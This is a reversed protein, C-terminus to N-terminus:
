CAPAPTGTTLFAAPVYRDAAIRLWEASAGRSGSVADGTTRCQVDVVAGHGVVGEDVAGATPASRVTIPAAPSDATALHVDAPAEGSRGTWLYDVTVWGNDQMGLAHFVGDGLDIGAPNKVQRGFGDAGGHYRDTYAAQAQPTGQALDGWNQRPPAANWYDDDTNWPGVDWVPVTACRGAATCVRVTYDGKGDVDLARRSPLAVFQDDEAIVHGNATTGGVLGERTAFVRYSARPSLARSGAAVRDARVTVARVTPTSGGPPAALTLRLAVTRTPAPLVAPDGPEAPTWESWRGAEDRGRVDVDVATGAPADATVPVVFRDVPRAFTHTGLDLFGQRSAGRLSGPRQAARPSALRASGDAVQVGVADGALEPRWTQADVGPSTVGPTPPPAGIAAIAGALLLVGSTLLAPLLLRRRRPVPRRPTPGDDASRPSRM